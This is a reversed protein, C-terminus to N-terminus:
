IKQGDDCLHVLLLSAAIARKKKFFFFVCVGKLSFLFSKLNRGTWSNGVDDKWRM